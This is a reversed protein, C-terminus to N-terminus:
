TPQLMGVCSLSLMGPLLSLLAMCLDNHYVLRVSTDSMGVLLVTCLAM